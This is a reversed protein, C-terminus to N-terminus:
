CCIMFTIKIIPCPSPFALYASYNLTNQELVPFQVLHDMVNKSDPRMKALYCICYDHSCVQIHSILPSIFSFISSYLKFSVLFFSHKGSDRNLQDVQSDTLDNM